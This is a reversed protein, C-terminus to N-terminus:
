PPQRSAAQPQNSSAPPQTTTLPRCVQRLFAQERPGASALEALTAMSACLEDLHVETPDASYAEVAQESRGVVKSAAARCTRVSDLSM